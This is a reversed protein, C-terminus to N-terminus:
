AGREAIACPVLLHGRSAACLVRCNFSVQTLFLSVQLDIRSLLWSRLSVPDSLHYMGLAKPCERNHIRWSFINKVRAMMEGKSVKCKVVRTPNSQGWYEFAPHARDLIPQILQHCFSIAVAGRTFGEAKLQDLDDLMPQLEKIDRSTLQNTWEPYPIPARGMRTPLMPTPNGLYFWV